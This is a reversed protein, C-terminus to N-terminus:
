GGRGVGRGASVAPQLRRGPHASKAQALVLSLRRGEECQGSDPFRHFRAARAASRPLAQVDPCQRRGPQRRGRLGPRAHLRRATRRPLLRECLGAYSSLLEHAVWATRRDVRQATRGPAHRGRREPGDPRTEARCGGPPPGSQAVLGLVIWGGHALLLQAMRRPLPCGCQLDRPQGRLCLDGRATRQQPPPPIDMRLARCRDDMDPLLGRRGVVRPRRLAGPM